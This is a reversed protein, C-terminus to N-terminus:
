NRPKEASCINIAFLKDINEDIRKKFKKKIGVVQKKNPILREDVSFIRNIKKSDDGVNTRREMIDAKNEKCILLFLNM